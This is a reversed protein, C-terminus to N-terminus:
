AKDDDLGFFTQISSLIETREEKVRRKRTEADLGERVSELEVRRKAMVQSMANAMEPRNRLVSKFVDKDIRYCEVETAAVVSATRREGTMVGMEGFVNPACIRAVLKEAGGENRVRVEAEGKALVYLWHAASDQRTIIEGRGFPAPRM